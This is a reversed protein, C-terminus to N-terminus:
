RTGTRDGDSRDRMAMQSDRNPRGAAVENLLPKDLNRVANRTATNACERERAATFMTAPADSECVAYAADRIRGYLQKVDAPKNFDVDRTSVSASQTDQAHAGAASFAAAALVSAALIARLM